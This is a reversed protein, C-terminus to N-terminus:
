NGRMSANLYAQHAEQETDFYGLHIQKGGVWSRARYKNHRKYYGKRRGLNAPDSKHQSAHKAHEILELNDLRNNLKNHDRHHIDHNGPISGNHREWISRHMTITTRKSATEYHRVAYVQRIRWKWQLLYDVDREDVTAEAGKALHINGM